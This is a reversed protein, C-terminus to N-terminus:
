RARGTSASAPACRATSSRSRSRASSSRAGAPSPHGAPPPSRGRTPSSRIGPRPLSPAVLRARMTEDWDASAATWEQQALQQVIEVARQGLRADEPDGGDPARGFRQQAAQRSIALLKQPHEQWTHGAHRADSVFTQITEEVADDLTIAATLGALPSGADRLAALVVEINRELLVALRERAGSEPGDPESLETLRAEVTAPSGTLNIKVSRLSPFLPESSPLLSADM